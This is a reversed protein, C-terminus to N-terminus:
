FIANAQLLPPFESNSKIPLMFSNSRESLLESSPSVLVNGNDSEKRNSKLQAFSVVLYYVSTLM